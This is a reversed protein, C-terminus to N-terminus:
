FEESRGGAGERGADIEHKDEQQFTGGSLQKPSAGMAFNLMFAISDSRLLM